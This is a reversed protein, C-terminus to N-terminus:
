KQGVKEYFTVPWGTNPNQKNSSIGKENNLISKIVEINQTTVDLWKVFKMGIWLLKFYM